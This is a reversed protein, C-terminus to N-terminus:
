HKRAALAQLGERASKQVGQSPDSIAATFRERAEELEGKAVLLWGLMASAEGARTSKAFDGLFSRLAIEAEGDRGLRSLAVAHWFAADEALAGEPDLAVARAFAAAATKFDKSQM